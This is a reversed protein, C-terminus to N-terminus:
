LFNSVSALQFIATPYSQAERKTWWNGCHFYLPDVPISGLLLVSCITGDLYCGLPHGAGRSEWTSCLKVRLEFSILPLARVSHSSRTYRIPIGTKDGQATHAETEEDMWHSKYYCSQLAKFVILYLQANGPKCLWPCFLATVPITAKMMGWDPWSAKGRTRRTTTFCPPLDGFGIASPYLGEKTIISVYTKPDARSWLVCEKSSALHVGGVGM